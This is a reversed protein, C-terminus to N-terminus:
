FLQSYERVVQGVGFDRLAEAAEQPTRRYKEPQKLVEIIGAALAAPNEPSVLAIRGYRQLERVGGVSDSAVLPVGVAMAELLANPLGEYRSPLVFLDANRTYVWPNNQFGMFHIGKLNLRETQQELETRLPGDGLIFLQADPFRINVEPMAELLIDFGKQRELRAAAVLFPGRKALGEFPSKNLAALQHVMEFDVPNYIRVLKERPVNFRHVLENGMSDSLCIVREAKRYFLRYLFKWLRPYRTEAALFPAPNISERVLIRTNKPLLPKVMLLTFNLYALTSLVTDPRVKRIVKVLSFAAYRM